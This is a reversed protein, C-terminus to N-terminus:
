MLQKKHKKDVDGKGRDAVINTGTQSAITRIVDRIDANKFDFSIRASPDDAPVPLTHSIFIMIALLGTALRKTQM